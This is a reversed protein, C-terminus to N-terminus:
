KDFLNFFKEFIGQKRIRTKPEDTNNLYFNLANNCIDFDSEEYFNISKFDFKDELHFSNNNFLKSGDGILFLESDNLFINLRQFNSKKFTLDIIEQVRYLIVKKLLNISINKSIIEKATINNESIDENYSFETQTENFCRKIKEAEIMSIKFVKSIDSTIHEGGIPITQIFVINNNEYIILTTRKTGIELFSIKQRNLKKSYSITKVLSNCCIKIVKLNKNIFDKKLNNVLVKPYCILKYDVKLNDVKNKNNPLQHHLQDDIICNNSIIHIIELNTYNSNIINILELTLNEYFTSIELKKDLNKSISIDIPFLEKSDITLIINNIHSSIKKEARKILSYIGDFNDLNVNDLNKILKDSFCENLKNDFVSFRINSNGLDLINFYDENSM